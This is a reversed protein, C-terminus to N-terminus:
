EYNFNIVIRIKEDTCSAGSHKIKSNFEIYKNEESYIKEGKEFKTYGNCNNIYFIGTKGKPQDTHMGHEINKSTRVVLNAKVRNLKKYKSSNDGKSGGLMGPLNGAVRRLNGIAVGQAAQRLSDLAM